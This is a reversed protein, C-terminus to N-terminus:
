RNKTLLSRLGHSVLCFSLSSRHSSICYLEHSTEHVSKPRTGRVRFPVSRPMLLSLTPTSRLHSLLPKRFGYLSHSVLPFKFAFVPGHLHAPAFPHLSGSGSTTFGVLKYKKGRTTAVFHGSLKSHLQYSLVPRLLPQYSNLCVTITRYSNPGVSFITTTDCDLFGTSACLVIDSETITTNSTGNFLTTM